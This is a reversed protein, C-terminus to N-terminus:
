KAKVSVLQTYAKKLVKRSKKSGRVNMLMPRLYKLSTMELDFVYEIAWEFTFPGYKEESDPTATEKKTHVITVEENDVAIAISWSNRVSNFDLPAMCAKLKTICPAVISQSTVKLIRMLPTHEGIVEDFFVKLGTPDSLDDDTKFYEGRKFNTQINESLTTDDLAMALTVLVTYTAETKPMEANDFPGCLIEGAPREIQYKRVLRAFDRHCVFSSLPKHFIDESEKWLTSGNESTQLGIMRKLRQEREQKHLEHDRLLRGVFLYKEM